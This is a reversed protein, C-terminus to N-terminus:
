NNQKGFKWIKFIANNIKEINRSTNELDIKNLQIKQEISNLQIKLDDIQRLLDDNRLEFALVIKEKEILKVKDTIKILTSSNVEFTRKNWEDKPSFVILKSEFGFVEKDSILLLNNYNINPNDVKVELLDNM